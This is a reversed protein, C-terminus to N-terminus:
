VQVPLEKSYGAASDRRRWVRVGTAALALAALLGVAVVQPVSVRYRRVRDTPWDHDSVLWVADAVDAKDNAVFEFRAHTANFVHVRGYGYTQLAALRWARDYYDYQDVNAGGSGIMIHVPALAKGSPADYYCADDFVACTREYSHYHGSFVVDVHHAAFVLELEDRYLLSRYYDGAFAVSCYMPRHMHVFLWPTARRDVHALDQLLWAHMPSGRAFDHEGSLVVHHTLGASFSYWFVSNGNAPMHFRRQLPVGCEGEAQYGHTGDREFPANRPFRAPDNRLEGELYGYDHNGVSVMYPVRAAVRQILEGFQDWVFTAGKAYSIDGVHVLAAYQRAEDRARDLDREILQMTTGCSGEVAFNETAEVPSNLDGFVFFSLSPPAEAASAAAANSVHQGARPPMTFSWVDSLLATASGNASADAVAHQSGVRYFYTEGPTLETLVAEFLQGPDRFLRASVTTAPARCMDSAAYSSQTARATADLADARAGYLVVPERVDASVWHVRMETPDATLAVHVQLPEAPGRTFRVFESTALAAGSAGSVFRFQWSCRMNVMPGFTVAGASRGGTHRRDIYEHTPVAAHKREDDICYAGIWDDAFSVAGALAPPLSAYAFDVRLSDRQALTHSSVAFTQLKLQAGLLQTDLRADADAAADGIPQMSNLAVGALALVSVLALASVLAVCTIVRSWASRAEFPPPALAPKDSKAPLLAHAVASSPNSKHAAPAHSSTASATATATASAAAAAAAAAATLSSLSSSSFVSSASRWRPLPTEADKM